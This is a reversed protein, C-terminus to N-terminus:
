PGVAAMQAAERDCPPADGRVGVRAVAGLGACFFSGRLNAVAPSSCDLDSFVRLTDWGLVLSTGIRAMVSASTSAMRLAKLLTRAARGFVAQTVEDELEQEAREGGGRLVAFYAPRTLAVDFSLIDNRQLSVTAAPTLSGDVFGFQGGASLSGGGAPSGFAVGGLGDLGGLGRGGGAVTRVRGDRGLGEPLAALLDFRACRPMYRDPLEADPLRDSLLCEAGARQRRAYAWHGQVPEQFELQALEVCPWKVSCWLSVV